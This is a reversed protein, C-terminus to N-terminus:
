GLGPNKGLANPRINLTCGRRVSVKEEGDILQWFGGGMGKGVTPSSTKLEGAKKAAAGSPRARSGGGKRIQARGWNPDKRITPWL